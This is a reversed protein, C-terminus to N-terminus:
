ASAIDLKTDFIHPKKVVSTFIVKYGVNNFFFFEHIPGLSNVMDNIFHLFMSNKNTIRICMRRRETVNSMNYM